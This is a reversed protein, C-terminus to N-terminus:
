HVSFLSMLRCYKPLQVRSSNCHASWKAVIFYTLIYAKTVSQISVTPFLPMLIGQSLRHDPGISLTHGLRGREQTVMAPPIVVIFSKHHGHNPRERTERLGSSNISSVRRFRTGPSETNGNTAPHREPGYDLVTLHDHLSVSPNKVETNTEPPTFPFAFTSPM